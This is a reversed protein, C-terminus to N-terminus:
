VKRLASVLQHKGVKYSTSLIAVRISDINTHSPDYKISANADKFSAVVEIVGSLQSVAHEVHSECGSCTMGTVEFTVHEIEDLAANNAIETRPYLTDAYLPFTLMIVSLLTVASLFAKGGLFSTKDVECGCDDAKVPRLQFYWAFGLAVVTAGILWPRLPEIWQFNSALSSSGALFAVLPTICCLSSAVSTLIGVGLM